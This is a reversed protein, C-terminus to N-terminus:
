DCSSLFSDSCFSICLFQLLLQLKKNDVATCYVWLLQESASAATVAATQQSFSCAVAATAPLLQQL